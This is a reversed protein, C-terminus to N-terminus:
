IQLLSIRKTNSITDKWFIWIGFEIYKLDTLFKADCTDKPFGAYM